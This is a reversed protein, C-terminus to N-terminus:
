GPRGVRTSGKPHARLLFRCRLSISSTNLATNDHATVCLGVYVATPMGLSQSGIQTWSTGSASVFGTITDANRVLRVWYPATVVPGATHTSTGGTTVRRQFASGNGPTIVTMAHRSQPTLSERIMVGAKAWPDTNQVSAVRAIFEGEWEM